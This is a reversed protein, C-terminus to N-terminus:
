LQGLRQSFFNRQRRGRCVSFPRWIAVSTSRIPRRGCVACVAPRLRPGSEGVDRCDRGRLAESGGGLCDEAVCSGWSGLHCSSCTSPHWPFIMRM